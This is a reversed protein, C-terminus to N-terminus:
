VTATFTFKSIFDNSRYVGGTKRLPLSGPHPARPAEGAAPRPSPNPKPCESPGPRPRPEGRQRPPRVPIALGWLVPAVPAAAPSRCLCAPATKRKKRGKKLVLWWRGGSEAARPLDSSNGAAPTAVTQKESQSKGGRNIVQLSGPSARTAAESM